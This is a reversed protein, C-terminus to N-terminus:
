LTLTFEDSFLSERGDKDFTTVVFHYTTESQLGSVTVQLTAADTVDAVNNYVGPENGYYIRYGGIEQSTLVTTNDERHTPAQWDVFASLNEFGGIGGGSASEELGCATLQVVALALLGRVCTYKSRHANM